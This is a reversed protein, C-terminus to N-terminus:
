GLIMHEAAAVPCQHDSHGATTRQRATDTPNAIAVDRASPAYSGVALGPRAFAKRSPQM